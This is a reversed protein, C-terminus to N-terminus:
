PRIVNASQALAKTPHMGLQSVHGSADKEILTVEAGMRAARIAAPYGGRRRRHHHYPDQGMFIEENTNERNWPPNATEGTFLDATAKGL